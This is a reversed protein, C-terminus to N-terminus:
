HLSFRRKERKMNSSWRIVCVTVRSKSQFMSIYWQPLLSVSALCKNTAPHRLAVLFKDISDGHVKVMGTIYLYQSSGEGYISCVWERAQTVMKEHDDFFFCCSPNGAISNKDNSHIIICLRVKDRLEILYDSTCKCSVICLILALTPM